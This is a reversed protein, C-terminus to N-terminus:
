KAWWTMKALIIFSTAIVNVISLPLLLELRFGDVPRLPFAASNRADLRLHFPFVLIKSLLWVAGSHLPKRGPSFVLIAGLGAIATGIGPLIIRGFITKM